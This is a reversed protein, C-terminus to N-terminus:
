LFICTNKLAQQLYWVCTRRVSTVIGTDGGVSNRVPYVYMNYCTHRKYLNYLIDYFKNINVHNSSLFHGWLTIYFLQCIIALILRTTDRFTCQVASKINKRESEKFLSFFPPIYMEHCNSVSRTTNCLIILKRLLKQIGSLKFVFM